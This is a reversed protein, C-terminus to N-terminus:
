RPGREIKRIREELSDLKSSLAQIATTQARLLRSLEANSLQPAGPPAKPPAAPPAPKSGEIARPAQPYQQAFANASAIILAFFLALKMVNDGELSLLGLRETLARAAQPGDRNFPDNPQM